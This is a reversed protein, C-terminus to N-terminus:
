LGELAQQQSADVSCSEAEVVSRQPFPTNTTPLTQHKGFMADLRIALFGLKNKTLVLAVTTTHVTEGMQAM